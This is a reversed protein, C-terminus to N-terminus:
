NPPLGSVMPSGIRTWRLWRPLDPPRRPCRGLRSTVVRLGAAMAEMVAICSTEAFDNPYALLTARRLAEALEPQPLSGFYEVGDIQVCRGYLHGYEATDRAAPVHYVQMSSFVALETGPVARRVAPFVDLLLDLGRFPTSTYALLPPRVKAAAAESGDAFLQTFPPGAANRLVQCRAPDLAFKEVYCHRQWQSVLVFGDFLDRIAAAHLPQMAPQDHAHQTWLILRAQPALMLKISAAPGAVNLLVVVDSDFLATGAAASNVACFAVGGSVGARTTHNVLCVQHGLRALEKALYCLASQSGGLPETAPADVTYDWAALDVFAIRM